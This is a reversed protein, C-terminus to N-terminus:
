GHEAACPTGALEGAAGGKPGAGRTGEPCAVVAALQEVLNGDLTDLALDAIRHTRRALADVPENPVLEAVQPAREPLLPLAQPDLVTGPM